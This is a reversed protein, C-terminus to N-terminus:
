VSQGKWLIKEPDQAKILGKEVKELEARVLKELAKEQYSKQSEVIKNVAFDVAIGTVFGLVLVQALAKGKPMHIAFKKGQSAAISFMVVDGLFGIATSSGVIVLTKKLKADM